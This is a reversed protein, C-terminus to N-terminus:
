GKRLAFKILTELDEINQARAAELSKDIEAITLGLSLLAQRAQLVAPAGVTSTSVPWETAATAFKKGLELVIRDAIKAGIGRVAKLRVADGTAITERVNEAPMGSLLTLALKPGVGSVSILEEFVWREDRSAFGFLEFQEERVFLRTWLQAEQGVPPLKDYTTLSIRASLAIGHIDVVAEAPSKALLRGRVSDIM